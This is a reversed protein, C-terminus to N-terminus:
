VLMERRVVAARTARRDIGSQQNAHQDHPVAETDARFTPEALFYVQVQRVAPEAPATQFVLHRIM